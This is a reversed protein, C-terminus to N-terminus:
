TAIFDMLWPKETLWSDDKLRTEGFPVWLMFDRTARLNDPYGPLNDMVVSFSGYGSALCHKLIRLNGMESFFVCRELYDFQVGNPYYLGDVLVTLENSPFHYLLLRGDPKHEFLALLYDRDAFHNSPESLVIM